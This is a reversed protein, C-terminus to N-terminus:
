CNTQNIIENFEQKLQSVVKFKNESIIYEHPPHTHELSIYNNKISCFIPVGIYKDTFLFIDPEILTSDVIIENLCNTIVREKKLIKKTKINIFFISFKEQVPLQFINKFFIINIDADKNLLSSIPSLINGKKTTMSFPYESQYSSFGGRSNFVQLNARYSPNTNTFNNLDILKDGNNILKQVEQTTALLFFNDKEIINENIIFFDGSSEKNTIHSINWKDSIIQLEFLLHNKSPNSSNQFRPITVKSNLHLSKIGFFFNM